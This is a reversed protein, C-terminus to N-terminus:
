QCTLSRCEGGFKSLSIVVGDALPCESLPFALVASCLPGESYRFRYGMYGSYFDQIWSYSHFYGEYATSSWYYPWGSIDFGGIVVRNIYMENLEYRSPLFWDNYENLTYAACVQAARNTEDLEALKAVIIDTNEKGTGIAESTGETWLYDYAGWQFRYVGGIEIDAPAAELYRWGDSYAPKAYFVIGGAPGTDGIEYVGYGCVTCIYKADFTHEAINGIEGCITCEHWHNDDDYHWQTGFVCDHNSDYLCIECVGEADFTHEEHETEDGCSCEQWHHTAHSFWETGYSHTHTRAPNKGCSTILCAVSLMIMILIFSKKM